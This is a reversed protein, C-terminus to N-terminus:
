VRQSLRRLVSSLARVLAIGVDPLEEMRRLLEDRDLELLHVPTLAIASASRLSGDFISVEGIVDLPGMVGLEIGAHEIRIEGALVVFASTTADGARLIVDGAAHRVERVRAALPALQALPLEALVPISKLHLVVDNPKM